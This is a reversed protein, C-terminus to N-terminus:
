KAPPTSRAGAASLVEQESAVLAHLMADPDRTERLRLLLATHHCMMCLRALLHLHLQDDACCMLFFLDTMEGDPAGYPIPQLTRAVLVFSDEFLYPEHHAPHPIALGGPLATSGMREREELSARLDSAFNVRGTRDAMKVLDRLVAARTKSGLEPAIFDPLVLEPILTSGRDLVSMRRSSQKHYDRINRDNMGLIRRSVWADIERQQFVLRGGRKTHPIEGQQAMEAISDASLHLYDALEEASFTRHAMICAAM